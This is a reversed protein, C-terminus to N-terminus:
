SQAKSGGSGRGEEMPSEESGAPRQEFTVEESLGRLVGVVADCEGAGNDQRAQKM